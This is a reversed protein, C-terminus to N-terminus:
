RTGVALLAKFSTVDRKPAAGFARAYDRSFQSPSEYGVRYAAASVTAAESVMLRRAELLRLQKQYQVPTMSTMAKFHQHFSSASMRAVEALREVRLTEGYHDRLYHISRAVREAQTDPMALKALEGGHPGTLLWYYLERMIAPYLIPVADPMRALRALRMVCDALAADVPGICACPGAAPNPAPPEALQQLVERLSAVDVDIVMGLYPEAETAGIVRGSAPVDVSVVLCEMEEYRLTTDGFLLEKAGKLVVCLSPRYINRIAPMHGFSRVIHVGPMPTRFGGQGGGRAEIFALVASLLAPPTRAAAGPPRDAPPRDAPPRDAPPASRCPPADAANSLGIM